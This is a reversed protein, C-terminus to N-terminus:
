KWLKWWSRAGRYHGELSKFMEALGTFTMSGFENLLLVLRPDPDTGPFLYRAFVWGVSERGTVRISFDPRTHIQEYAAKYAIFREKLDEEWVRASDESNEILGARIMVEYCSRHYADLLLKTTGANALKPSNAVYWMWFMTLICFEYRWRRNEFDPIGPASVGAFAEKMKASLEDSTQVLRRGAETGVDNWPIDGAIKDM